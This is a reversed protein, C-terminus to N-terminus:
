QSIYYQNLGNSVVLISSNDAKVHEYLQNANQQHQLQQQLGISYSTSSPFSSTSPGSGGAGTGNTTTATTATPWYFQPEAFNLNIENLNLNVTSNVESGATTAQQKQLQKIEITNLMNMNATSLDIIKADNKVQKIPVIANSSASETTTTTKQHINQIHRHAHSRNNFSKYCVPCTWTAHSDVHSKATARTSFGQACVSCSYLPTQTHKSLIHKRLHNEYFFDKACSDCKFSKKFQSAGTTQQSSAALPAQNQNQTAISNTTTTAAQTKAFFDLYNM